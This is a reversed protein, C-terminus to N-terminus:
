PLRSLMGLSGFPCLLARRRGRQLKQATLLWACRDAIMLLRLAELRQHFKEVSWVQLDSLDMSTLLTIKPGASNQQATPRCSPEM